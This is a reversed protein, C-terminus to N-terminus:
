EIGVQEKITQITEAGEWDPLKSLASLIVHIQWLELSIFMSQTEKSGNGAPTVNRNDVKDPKNSWGCTCVYYHRKIHGMMYTTPVVRASCKPCKTRM